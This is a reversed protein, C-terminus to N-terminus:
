TNLRKRHMQCHDDQQLMCMLVFLIQQFADYLPKLSYNHYGNSMLEKYSELDDINLVRINKM